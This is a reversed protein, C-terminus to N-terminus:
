KGEEVKPTMLGVKDINAGHAIDIAQAVYSFDMDPDGKIFVVRDNRTKFIEMLREQLADWTSDEQNIKVNDKDIQDGGDPRQGTSAAHEASAATAGIGGPGEPPGAFHGHLHDAAGAPHRDDADHQYELSAAGGGVNMAM